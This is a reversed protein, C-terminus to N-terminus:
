NKGLFARFMWNNKEQFQIFKNIMDNTGDDGAAATTEMIQREIQILTTLDNMVAEVMARDPMGVTNTEKIRSHTIYDSFTSFPAKGLTLIREALEDISLVANDYLEEFKAHLSFFHSGKVNWHCGRLNQYHIHYNALLENLQDAIPVVQKEELSIENANM